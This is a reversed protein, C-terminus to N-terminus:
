AMNTLPSGPFMFIHEYKEVSMPVSILCQKVFGIAQSRIVNM